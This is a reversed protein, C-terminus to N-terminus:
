KVCDEEEHEEGEHWQMKRYLTSYKEYLSGDKDLGKEITEIEPWHEEDFAVYLVFTKMMGDIQDATFHPMNLMSTATTHVTFQDPDLWGEKIAVDRLVTGRYPTFISVTVADYGKIQKIFNISDFVMERTEFPFGIIVNISFDIGSEHIINFKELLKENTASRGLYKKRFMENGSEVGFSVRFLGVEKLKQFIDLDSHEARTNFWFPIKFESYMDIFDYIESNPRALFDDDIVYFFNIDYNNVVHEIERRIGPITRRRLYTKKEQRAITNHIPSNCYTCKNPCGRFTELPIARIVKGGMPRVFRADEFLSFDTSYEDLAVYPPAPNKIIAGDKQKLWLGPTDDLTKRGALRNAVEEVTIEGEATGIMNIESFSILWEPDSIAVIGGVVTPIDYENSIRLLDLARLLSDETFSYLLLDPQFADLKAKFDSRMKSADDVHYVERDELSTKRAQLYKVRNEPSSLDEDIYKTSDFLDVEHGRNRLIWTFYAIALPTVLMLPINPYVLLVKIGRM